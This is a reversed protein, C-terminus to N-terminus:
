KNLMCHLCDPAYINKITCADGIPVEIPEGVPYGMADEGTQMFETNTIVEYYQCM